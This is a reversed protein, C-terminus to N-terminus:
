LYKIDIIGTDKNLSERDEFYDTLERNQQMIIFKKFLYENSKRIYDCEDEKAQFFKGDDLKVAACAKCFRVAWCNKCDDNELTRNFEMYADTIKEYDLGDNVNGIILSGDTKHCMHYNGDSDAMINDFGMPCTNLSHVHNCGFPKDYKVKLFRNLGQCYENIFIDKKGQPTFDENLIKDSFFELDGSEYNNLSELKEDADPIVKGRESYESIIRSKFGEIGSGSDSEFFKECKERDLNKTSVSIYFVKTRYFEPYKNKIKLINKYVAAFTGSGDAFVRNKNHEEEPGDLSIYLMIGNGAIYDIMEDSIKALNSTLGFVFTSKDAGYKEWDLSLFYRHSKKLVNFNLLPEGGYYSVGPANMELLKKKKEEDLRSLFGTYRRYYNDIARFATEENIYKKTHTRGSEALTNPCYRCRFNCDETLEINFKRTVINEGYYKVLELMYSRNTIGINHVSGPIFVGCKKLLSIKESFKIFNGDTCFEEQSANGLLAKLYEIEKESAMFAFNSKADYVITLGGGNILKILPYNKFIIDSNM